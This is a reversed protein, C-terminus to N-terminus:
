RAHLVQAAECVQAQLVAVEDVVAVAECQGGEQVKAAEVEAASLDGEARQLEQRGERLERM